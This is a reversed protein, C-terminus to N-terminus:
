ARNVAASGFLGAPRFLLVLIMLAYTLVEHFGVGLFQLNSQYGQALVEAVGVMLGGVIAGHVSDLGGIVAAPFARLAVSALDVNVGPSPFSSLFVGAVVALGGAIGWAMASLRDLRIGMLPAIERKETAARFAIGWASRRFWTLFAVLILGAVVIAAVRSMPISLPGMRVMQSGWPDGLPLIQTNVQARAATLLVVDLGITMITISIVTRGAMSRVLFREIGLAILVTITVGALIALWFNWSSLRAVAYAGILLLSGHAFNLIETAKYIIVFGLAILGYMAGLAIGSLVFQAFETM